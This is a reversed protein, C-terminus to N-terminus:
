GVEVEGCRVAAARRSPRVEGLEVGSRKARLHWRAGSWEVGSREVGSWEAGSWEVGSWEVGSWEVGSWEVGGRALRAM